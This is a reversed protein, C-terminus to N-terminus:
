LILLINIAEKELFEKNELFSKSYFILRYSM